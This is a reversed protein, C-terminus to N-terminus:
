REGPHAQFTTPHGATGSVQVVVRETYTGARIDVLAGPAASSAAKSITRWPREATGPGADDGDPAVVQVLRESPEAGPAMATACFAAADMVATPLAWSAFRRGAM